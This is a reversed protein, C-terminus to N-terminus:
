HIRSHHHEQLSSCISVLLTQLKLIIYDLLLPDVNFPWLISTKDHIDEMLGRM